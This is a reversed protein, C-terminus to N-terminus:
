TECEWSCLFRGDPYLVSIGTIGIRDPIPRRKTAWQRIHSAHVGLLKAAQGLSSLVECGYERHIITTVMKTRKRDQMRVKTKRSHKRGEFLASTSKSLNCCYKDNISKNIELQEAARLDDTVECVFFRFQLHKNFVRQLKQNAHRNAVLDALHRAIRKRVNRSSGIYFYNGIFLYYVGGCNM